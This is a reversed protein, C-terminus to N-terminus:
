NFTLQIQASVNVNITSNGGEVSPAPSDSTMLMEARMMTRRVPPRQMGTNVDISVVQYGDAGMTKQMLAAREKFQNLAEVSLMNETKQRVQKSVDFRM